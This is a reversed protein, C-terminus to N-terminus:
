YHCKMCETGGIKEVTVANVEGQKVENVLEEYSSYFENTHFSVESERHCEICWGMSLDSVQKIRHMEEVDGHCDQCEVEGI